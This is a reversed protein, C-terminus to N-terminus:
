RQDGESGVPEGNSGRTTVDADNRDGDLLGRDRVVVLSAHVGAVLIVALLYAFGFFGITGLTQDAGPMPDLLASYVTMVPLAPLFLAELVARLPGAPEGILFQSLFGLYGIAPLSFVLVVYRNM